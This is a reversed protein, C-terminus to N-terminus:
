EAEFAVTILLTKARDVSFAYVTMLRRSDEGRAATSARITKQYKVPRPMPSTRRGGALSPIMGPRPRPISASTATVCGTLNQGSRSPSTGAANPNEFPVNPAPYLSLIVSAPRDCDFAEVYTSESYGQVAAGAWAVDSVQQPGEPASSLPLIVLTYTVVLGGLAILGVVLDFVLPRGREDASRLM